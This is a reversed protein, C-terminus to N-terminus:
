SAFSFGKSFNWLGAAFFIPNDRLKESKNRFKQVLIGYRKVGGIANEVKVRVRRVATNYQKQEPTLQPDPNNKSKYPKKHPIMTEHSQYDKKFGLYGLDIWVKLKKFWHYKKKFNKKSYDMITNSALYM